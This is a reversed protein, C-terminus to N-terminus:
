FCANLGPRKEEISQFWMVISFFFEFREYRLRVKSSHLSSSKGGSKSRRIAGAPTNPGSEGPAAVAVAADRRCGGAGSQAPQVNGGGAAPAHVCLRLGLAQRVKRWAGEM